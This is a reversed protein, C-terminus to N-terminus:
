YQYWRPAPMQAGWDAASQALRAVVDPQAAAINTSEAPDSVVNYLEAPRNRFLILKYKGERVVRTDGLRNIERWHLRGPLDSPEDRLLPTLDVGDFSETGVALNGGAMHTFTPALDFLMVPTDTAKGRPTVGPWVVVLPVRFGGEWSSYKHGQFPANDALGRISGGNDVAFVIVSNQALGLASVENLLRGINVDMRRLLALYKARKAPLGPYAQEVWALDEPTPELPTHPATYSLFLFFPHERNEEIFRLAANTLDDTVYTLESEPVFTGNHEIQDYKYPPPATQLEPTPFYPRSGGRIGFFEDFGRRTPYFADDYGQHWKGIIATTYGNAKLHDGVTKESPDMGLSRWRESEWVPAFETSTSEPYNQQYGFRHPYRGTLLAARSPGCISANAYANTFRLGEASLADLNPTLKEMAPNDQFGFDHYGADDALIFIINPPRSADNAAWSSTAVFCLYFTTLIADRIMTRNENIPNLSTHPWTKNGKPM